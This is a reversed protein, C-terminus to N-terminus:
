SFLPLGNTIAGSLDAEGYRKMLETYVTGPVLEDYNPGTYNYLHVAYAWEPIKLGPKRYIKDVEQFGFPVFVNKDEKFHTLGYNFIARTFIVTGWLGFDPYRGDRAPERIQELINALFPAGKPARFAGNVVNFPLDALQPRKVVGTIGCFIYDNVFDYPRLCIIDMDMWYGGEQYILEYRFYNSFTQYLHKCPRWRGLVEPSVIKAADCLMAGAPVDIPDYVWLRYDHGHQIFSRISAIQARGLPGGAWFGHVLM